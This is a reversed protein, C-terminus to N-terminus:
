ENYDGNKYDSLVAIARLMTRFRDLLDIELDTFHSPSFQTITNAYDPAIDAVYKIAMEDQGANMMEYVDYLLHDINQLTDSLCTTTRIM